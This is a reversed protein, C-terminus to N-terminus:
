APANPMVEKTFWEIRSVMEDAPYAWVAGYNTCGADAYSRITALFDDTKEHPTFHQLSAKIDRPVGLDSRLKRLHEIGTRYDDPELNTPIWCDAYRAALRMMRRGRTGFWLQPRPQQVPLPAIQAGTATYHTGSHDVSGGRWLRDILELAEITQDVRVRPAEWRSFGDFEPQHWGAGVGLIARGKSLVDVTAVIKALQAPPRFPIPTVVTGLMISSTKGAVFALTAWADLTNPGGPTMYHDWVLFSQFGANEAAVAAATVHEPDCYGERVPYILSFEM